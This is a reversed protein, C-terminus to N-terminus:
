NAASAAVVDEKPRPDDRIGPPSFTIVEQNVKCRLVLGGDGTESASYISLGATYPTSSTNEWKRKGDKKVCWAFYIFLNRLRESAGSLKVRSIKGRYHYSYTPNKIEVQGGVFREFVEQTLEM